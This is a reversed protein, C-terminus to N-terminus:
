GCAIYAEMSVIMIILYDIIQTLSILEIGGM